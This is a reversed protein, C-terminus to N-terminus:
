SMWERIGIIVPMSSILIMLSLSLIVKLKYSLFWFGVIALILLIIGTIILIIKATKM